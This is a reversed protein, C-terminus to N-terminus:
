VQLEKMINEVINMGQDHNLKMWNEVLILQSLYCLISDISFTGGEIFTYVKKIRWLSMEWHLKLPESGFSDYIQKLELFEEPPTFDAFDKQALIYSVLDDMPDEYQLERSLDYRYKKSRLAVMILRWAREFELFSKLFGKAKQTEEYFFQALLKPFHDLRSNITDFERLFEFVYDPFGEELLLATELEKANYNGHPDLEKKQWFPRLNNIDVYRRIVSAKELDAESLNQKCLDNFEQFPIEPPNGLNLSFPLLSALFYYRSM